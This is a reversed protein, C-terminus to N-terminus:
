WYRTQLPNSIRSSRTQLTIRTGNAGLDFPIFLKRYFQESNADNMFKLYRVPDTAFFVPHNIL